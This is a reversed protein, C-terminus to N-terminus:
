CLFNHGEDLRLKGPQTGQVILALRRVNAGGGLALAIVVASASSSLSRRHREPLEGRDVQGVPVPSGACVPALRYDARCTLLYGSIESNCSESDRDRAYWASVDYMRWPSMCIENGAPLDFVRPKWLISGIANEVRPVVVSPWSSWGRSVAGSLDQHLFM